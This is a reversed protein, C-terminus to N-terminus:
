CPVPYLAPQGNICMDTMGLNSTVYMTANFDSDIEGILKRAFTQNPPTSTDHSTDGNDVWTGGVYTTDAKIVPPTSTSVAGSSIAIELYVKVAGSISKWGSDTSLPADSSLLGSIAIATTSDTASGFLQSSNVVGIKAGSGTIDVLIQFPNPDPPNFGGPMGPVLYLYGQADQIQVKSSCGSLLQELRMIRQSCSAMDDDLRSM